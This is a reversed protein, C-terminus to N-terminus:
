VEGGALVKDVHAVYDAWQSEDLDQAGKVGFRALVAIAVDRGKQQSLKLTAPKVHDKYTLEPSSSEGTQVSPEASKQTSSEPENPAKSDATSATDSSSDRAKAASKDASKKTTDAAPSNPYIKIEDLPASVPDVLRANSIARTLETVAATLLEIKAELSM